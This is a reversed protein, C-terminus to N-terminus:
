NRVSQLAYFRASASRREEGDWLGDGACLRAEDIDGRGMSMVTARRCVAIWQAFVM